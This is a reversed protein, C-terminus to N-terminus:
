LDFPSDIPPQAKIDNIASKLIGNPGGFGETMSETITFHLHQDRALDFQDREAALRNKLTNVTIVNKVLPRINLAWDLDSTLFRNGYMDDLTPIAKVGGQEKRNHHVIYVACNYKQRISKALYETFMRVPLEEKLEQSLVKQLSDIFLVDPMYEQMLSDIFAQGEIKDFPIGVGLPAIKFNHELTILEESSYTNAINTMFLSLPPGPMELSLFLVKKKSGVNKWGLFDKGLALSIGMQSGFQTKGVGPAGTIVGFGGVMLLEELIWEVKFDAALFSQFGYVIQAKAEPEVAQNALGPIINALVSNDDFNYGVKQRARNIIDLLHRERDHRNKYKGWRDDADQLISYIQEDSFGNEAGFYGLRMLAGSRDTPMDVRFLEWFDKPWKGLAIVDAIPPIDSSEVSQKVVQKASPLASFGELPVTDAVRRKLVVEAPKRGDKGYGSNITYPPRLFQNADWGSTDAKFKYAISRNREDIVSVDTVFEDLRWYDHERGPSSEVILTPEPVDKVKSWDVTTSDFDAWLVHTGLVNERLPKPLKFLAPSYYADAGEANHRLVHKIITDRAKPWQLMYQDLTGQKIVPLYVWGETDRWVYDFFEGLGEYAERTVKTM